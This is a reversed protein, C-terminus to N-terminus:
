AYRKRVEEEEEETLSAARTGGIIFIKANEEIEEALNIATQLNKGVTVMGHKCLLASDREILIKRVAEALQISGPVLFPIAPLAGVRIAYGPTMSPITFPEKAIMCSLSVAYPTHVHVVASVDLREQYANLHFVLEKSPKGPSLTTGDFGVKVLDEAKLKGLSYGTPTILLGDALRVSINGGSSSVMERNYVELCVQVLQQRAVIESDMVREDGDRKNRERNLYKIM